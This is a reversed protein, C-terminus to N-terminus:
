SPWEERLRREVERLRKVCPTAWRQLIPAIDKTFTVPNGAEAASAVFFLTLLILLGLQFCRGTMPTLKIMIKIASVTM